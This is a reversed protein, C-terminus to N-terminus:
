AQNVAEPATMQLMWQMLATSTVSSAAPDSADSTTRTTSRSPRNAAETAASSETSAIAAVSGAAVPATVRDSGARQEAAAPGRVAVLAPEAVAALDPGLSLPHRPLPVATPVGETDPSQVSDADMGLGDSAGDRVTRVAGADTVVGSVTEGVVVPAEVAAAVPVLLLDAATVAEPAVAAQLMRAFDGSEARFDPIAGAAPGRGHARGTAQAACSTPALSLLSSDM